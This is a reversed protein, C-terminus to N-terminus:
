LIDKQCIKELFPALPTSYFARSCLSLRKSQTQLVELIRPHARGHTVASYASMMDLYREGKQDWLWVDKGRDLVM